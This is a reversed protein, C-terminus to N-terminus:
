LTAGIDGTGRRNSFGQRISLYADRLKNGSRLNHDATHTHISRQWRATGWVDPCPTM